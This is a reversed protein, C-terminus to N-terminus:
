SWNRTGDRPSFQSGIVAIAISDLVRHTGAPDGLRSYRVARAACRVAATGQSRHRIGQSECRDLLGKVRCLIRWAGLSSVLVSVLLADLQV